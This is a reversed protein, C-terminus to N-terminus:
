IIASRPNFRMVARKNVNMCKLGISSLGHLTIFAGRFKNPSLDLNPVGRTRKSEITYRKILDSDLLYKRFNIRTNDINVKIKLNCFIHFSTKGTFRVSVDDVMRFRSIFDSVELAAIKAKILDDSDIDIIGIDELRKMTSYIAVTRGTILEDYNSSNLRIFRSTKGARKIIPKNVDVMIVIMLDRGLVERLLPSKVKQYYNWIDIEKLGTPYYKNKIVISEPNKPYGM